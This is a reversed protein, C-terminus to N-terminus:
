LLHQSQGSTRNRVQMVLSIEGAAEGNKVRNEPYRLLLWGQIAAANYKRMDEQIGLPRNHRGNRWVGGEVEVALKAGPWAFDFRWGRRSDFQFERLPEPLGRKRIQALLRKELDSGGEQADAILELEDPPESQKPLRGLGPLAKDQRASERQAKPLESHSCSRLPCILLWGGGVPASTLVLEERHRPCVPM